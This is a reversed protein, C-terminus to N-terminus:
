IKTAARLLAVSVLVHVHVPVDVHPPQQGGRLHPTFAGAGVEASLQHSVQAEQLGVQLVQLHTFSSFWLQLHKSRLM